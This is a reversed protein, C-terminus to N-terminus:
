LDVLSVLHIKTVKKEGNPSDTERLWNELMELM